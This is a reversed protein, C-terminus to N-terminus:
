LHPTIKEKLQKKLDELSSENSILIDAEEIVYKIGRMDGEAVGENEYTDQKLFEEYTRLSEADRARSAIRDHRVKPDADVAVMIGGAEKLAKMEGISRIGSIVQREIGREKAQLVGMQVTTAQNLERLQTAVMFLQDRIPSAEPPLDFLFRTCARVFDSTSYNHMEFLECMLEAVTDKGSGATGTLGFLKM